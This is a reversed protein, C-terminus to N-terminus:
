FMYRRTEIGHLDVTAVGTHIREFYKRRRTDNYAVYGVWGKRKGIWDYIEFAWEENGEVM